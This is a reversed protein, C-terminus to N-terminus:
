EHIKKDEVSNKIEDIEGLILEFLEKQYTNIQEIQPKKLNQANISTPNRKNLLSAKYLSDQKKKVVM